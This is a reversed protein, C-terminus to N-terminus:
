ENSHQKSTTDRVAERKQRIKEKLSEAEAKAAAIRSHIDTM